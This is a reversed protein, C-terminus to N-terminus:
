LMIGVRGKKGWVVRKKLNSRILDENKM